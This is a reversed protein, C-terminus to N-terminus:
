RTQWRSRPATPAPRVEATESDLYGALAAASAATVALRVSATQKCSRSVVSRFYVRLQLAIDVGAIDSRWLDNQDINIMAFDDCREKVVRSREYVHLRQTLGM